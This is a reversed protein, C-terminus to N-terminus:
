QGGLMSRFRDLVGLGQQAQPSLGQNIVKMLEAESRIKPLAGSKLYNINAKDQENLARTWENILADGSLTSEFLKSVNFSNKKGNADYGYMTGDVFYGQDTKRISVNGGNQRTINYAEGSALYVDGPKVKYQNTFINNAAGKDLYVTIGQNIAENLPIGFVMEAGKKGTAKSKLWEPNINTLSVAVLNGNNAAVDSYTVKASPAGKKQENTRYKTSRLDFVFNNFVSKAYADSVDKNAYEDATHDTGTIVKYSGDGVYMANNYFSILAQNAFKAPANYDATWSIKNATMGSGYGMGYPATIGPVKESTYLQKYLALNEQYKEKWYKEKNGTTFIGKEMPLNRMNNVYTKEDVLAYKGDGTKTFMSRFNVKNEVETSSMAYKMVADNNKFIVNRYGDRIKYYQDYSQSISAVNSALSSYINQNRKVVNRSQIYFQNVSTPNFKIDSFNNYNIGDAKFTNSAQDYFDGLISKLENKAHEREAPTDAKSAESHLYGITNSIYEKQKILMSQGAKTAEGQAIAYTDVGEPTSGGPGPAEVTGDYDGPLGGNLFGLAMEKTIEIEAVKVAKDLDLNYKFMAEQIRLSSEYARITYPNAEISTISNNAKGFNYAANALDKNLLGQGVFSEIERRLANRDKTNNPLNAIRDKLQQYYDSVDNAVVSEEKSNYWDEILPDSLSVGERKAKNTIADSKTKVKGAIDSGEKADEQLKKLTTNMVESFYADEAKNEDNGYKALNQQIYGKRNLYANTKYVAQIDPNKGFVSMYMNMLPIMLEEGNRRKVIYQGTNPDVSDVVLNMEKAWALARETVNIFPTFSPATMKLADEKSAKSYDDLKYMLEMVGEDWYQGNCKKPDNCNKFTEARSMENQVHKTFAMDHTISKDNVLPEFISTAIEQNQALSLDYGSVKKIDQEITKFFDDRKKINDERSLTSYLLKGYMNELKKHASDYMNQRRALAKDYFNFDPKFPQIQPIYDTLGQIYTAM